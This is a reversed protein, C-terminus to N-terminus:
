ISTRKDNRIERARNRRNNLSDLEERLLRGANAQKNEWNKIHNALQSSGKESYTTLELLHNFDVSTPKDNLPLHEFLDEDAGSNELKFQKGKNNIDDPWASSLVEMDMEKSHDNEMEPVMFTIEGRGKGM